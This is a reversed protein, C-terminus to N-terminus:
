RRLLHRRLLRLRLLLSRSRDSAFRHRYWSLCFRGARNGRCWSRLLRILHSHLSLAHSPDKVIGNRLLRWGRWWLLLLMDHWLLGRGNHVSRNRNRWTGPMHVRVAARHRYRVRGRCGWRSGRRSWRPFAVKHGQQVIIWRRSRRGNCRGSCLSDVLHCSADLVRGGRSGRSERGTGRLRWWRPWRLLAPLWLISSVWVRTVRCLCGNWRQLRVM